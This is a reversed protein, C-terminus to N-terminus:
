LPKKDMGWMGTTKSNMNSAEAVESPAQWPCQSLITDKYGVYFSIYNGDTRILLSDKPMTKPNKEMELQM